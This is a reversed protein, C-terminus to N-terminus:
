KAPAAVPEPTTPAPKDTPKDAPKEAPKTRLNLSALMLDWVPDFRKMSEGVEAATPLSAEDKRSASSMLQVTISWREHLFMTQRIVLRSSYTPLKNTKTITVLAARRDLIRYESYDSVAGGDKEFPTRTSMMGWFHEEQEPSLPVELGDAFVTITEDGYGGMSVARFAINSGKPNPGVAWGVPLQTLVELSGYADTRTGGWGTVVGERIALAPDKEHQADFSYLLSVVSVLAPVQEFTTWPKLTAQADAKIAARLKADVDATILTKRLEAIDTGNKVAIAEIQARGPGLHRDIRERAAKVKDALEPHLELVLELGRDITYMSGLAAGLTRPQVRDRWPLLRPETAPPKAPSEPTTPAQPPAPPQGQAPSAILGLTAISLLGTRLRNRLTM